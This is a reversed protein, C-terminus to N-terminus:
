SGQKESVRFHSRVWQAIPRVVEVENEKWPLSSPDKEMTYVISHGDVILHHDDFSVEKDYRGYVTDYRLLYATVEAPVIDNVAVLQLGPTEM